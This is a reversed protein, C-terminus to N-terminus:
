KYGDFTWAKLGAYEFEFEKFFTESESTRSIKKM